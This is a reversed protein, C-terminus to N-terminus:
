LEGKPIGLGIKLVQRFEIATVAACFYNAAQITWGFGHISVINGTWRPRFREKPVMETVRAVEYLVRLLLIALTNFILKDNL